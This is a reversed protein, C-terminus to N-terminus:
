EIVEDALALLTPPVELGLAKATKLNVALEFKVPAQVPLDGVVAGKLIRDVYGAARRYLDLTDVGYSILGGATIFYKYPYVAPLRYRAALGVMPGRNVATFIGPLVILGANSNHALTSLARELETADHVDPTSVHVGISPALTAIFHAYAFSARDGPNQIVMVQAFRPVIDKLLDLWKGAMAYEFNTFGTINGGPRALSEVFGAEVPDPVQVFVIPVTKTENKLAALVLTSNAVIVDPMLGVLEKAYSRIHDADNGTWRYDIRFNHGEAWGLEQLTQKLADVRLQAEVDSEVFPLLMGIQRMRERQQARAAIPRAIAAGGLFTIFERRNM